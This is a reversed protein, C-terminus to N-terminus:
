ITFPTQAEFQKNVQGTRFYNPTQDPPMRKRIEKYFKPYDGTFTGERWVRLLQATFLGNFDGDASLHNEQCGSFLLIAARAQERSEPQLNKLIEDYFDKNNRYTPLIVEQPMHRYDGESASHIVSRGRVTGEYYALKTVTGSHCSDSFVLVRAGEAFRALLTYIEDDVLQGDYLCWTDDQADVEEDNLDPLEGGHGSYSLMFFDGAELGDAVASIEDKVRQRTAEKTLLTNITFGKSTAINAMDEADADCANLKGSWGHYHNQDVSNLGITLASGTSMIRGRREEGERSSQAHCGPLLSRHIRSSYSAFERSFGELFKPSYLGFDTGQAM